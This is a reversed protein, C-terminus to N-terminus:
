NHCIIYKKIFHYQFVKLLLYSGGTALAAGVMELQPILLINLIVNLTVMALTIYTDLEPKGKQGLLNGMVIAPSAIVMCLLIISLPFLASLYEEGAIFCIVVFVGLICIAGVCSLKVIKKKMESILRNLEMYEENVAFQAFLPNLNTKFVGLLSFFGEALVSAMSYVGVIADTCFYGLVIIDMKTNLEGIIGGAMFRIGMSTSEKLFDLKIKGFKLKKLLVPLCCVFVLLEAFLFSYMILAKNDFFLLVTTVSFIIAIYRMAQLIAYAKMQRLGNSLGLLVKNVSFFVIAPIIACLGNYVLDSKFVYKGLFPAILHLIGAVVSGMLFSIIFHTSFITNKMEADDRYKAIYHISSNQLGLAGIQALVIYVAMVQNFAGLLEKGKIGIILNMLIGSAGIIGFSIVNWAMGEVAINDGPLIKKLINNM